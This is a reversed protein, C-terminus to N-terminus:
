PIVYSELELRETSTFEMISATSTQLVWGVDTVFFTSGTSSFTVPLSIGQTSVTLALTFSTDVRLAEFTGAAVEVSEMGVATYHTTATGEASGSMGEGLSVEGVLDLTHSWEDGASISVPLTVGEVNSTELTLEVDGTVLSAAPGGGLELSVLGEPKCEWQQTLTLDDFESTLTFRDPFVESVTSSFTYPESADGSSAYIWSAGVVVPFYPNSCAGADLSQGPSEAESPATGEDPAAVAAPTPTPEVDEGAAGCANLALALIFTILLLGKPKDFM